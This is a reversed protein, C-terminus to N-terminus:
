PRPGTGEDVVRGEVVDGPAGTAAAAPLSPLEIVQPAVPPVPADHHERGANALVVAVYPLFVAAAVFAWRVPHDVFVALLFCITRIVMSVIYKRYRVGIDDTHATPAASIRYVDAPAAGARPSSGTTRSRHM